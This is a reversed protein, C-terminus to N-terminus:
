IDITNNQAINWLLGDLNSTAICSGRPASQSASFPIRTSYAERNSLLFNASMGIDLSSKEKDPLDAVHHDDCDNEEQWVKRGDMRQGQRTMHPV